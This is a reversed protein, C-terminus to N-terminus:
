NLKQNRCLIVANGRHFIGGVFLALTVLAVLGLICLLVFAGYLRIEEQRRSRAELVPITYRVPKMTCAVM